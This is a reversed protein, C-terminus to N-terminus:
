QVAQLGCRCTGGRGIAGGRTGGRGRSGRGGRNHVSFTISLVNILVIDSNCTCTCQVYRKSQLFGPGSSANQGTAFYIMYMYM